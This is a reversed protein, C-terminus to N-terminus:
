TFNMVCFRESDRIDRYGVFAVRVQLDKNQTKINNIIEHLTEKSREIWEQMSSTIDMLLCLDLTPGKSTDTSKSKSKYATKPKTISKTKSTTDITTTKTEKKTM